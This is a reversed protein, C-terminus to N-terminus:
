RRRVRPDLDDRLLADARLRAHDHHFLRRAHAALDRRRVAGGSGFDAVAAPWSIFAPEVGYLMLVGVTYAGIGFFAAHGFSIMGGFGLVLNLSTALLAFILLRTAFSIYFPQDIATALLPFAIAAVLM